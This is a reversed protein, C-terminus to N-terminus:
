KVQLVRVGEHPTAKHIYGLTFLNHAVFEVMQTETDLSPPISSQGAFLLARWNYRFQVDKIGIYGALFEDHAAGEKLLAPKARLGLRLNTSAGTFIDRVEDKSISDVNMNPSAIIIIQAHAPVACLAGACALLLALLSKKM